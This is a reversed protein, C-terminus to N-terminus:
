EKGMFRDAHFEMLDKGLLEAAKSEGIIHEGLARYVLRTFLSSQECRYPEGPEQKKWGRSSFLKCVNTYETQSIIGTDFARRICAQM